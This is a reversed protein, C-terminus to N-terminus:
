RTWIWCNPVDWLLAQLDQIAVRLAGQVSRDVATDCRVPGLAREAKDIQEIPCGLLALTASFLQPIWIEGLQGFDAKRLSPLFLV